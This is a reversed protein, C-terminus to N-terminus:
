EHSYASLIQVRGYHLVKGAFILGLYCVPDLKINLYKYLMFFLLYIDSSVTGLVLALALALVRGQDPVLDLVRDPVASSTRLPTAVVM